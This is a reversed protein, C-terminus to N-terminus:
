TVSGTKLNFKKYNRAVWGTINSFAQIDVWTSNNNSGQVIFNKIARDVGDPAAIRLEALNYVAGCDVAVWQPMVANSSLWGLALNNDVIKRVEYDPAESRRSTPSSSTTIDAGGAIVAIELENIGAFSGGNIATIYIRLYRYSTLVGTYISKIPSLKEVNNRFSGICVYYTKDGEINTDVYSRAEGSLVAKAPPLNNVDFPSPSCYYKQEHVFGDLNWSLELRNAM